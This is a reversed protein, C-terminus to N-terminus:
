ATRSGGTSRWLLISTAVVWVAFAFFGLWNIWPVLLLLALALTVWGFWRPALTGSRLFVFGSAALLVATAYFAAVIMGDGVWWFGVAVEPDIPADRDSVLIAASVQTGFGAFILVATAIGGAHATSALRGVGGEVEQLVARLTSVFWLFFALGIFILISAWWISGDEEQYYSAFQAAPADGDPVDGIVDHVLAGLLFLAVAVVGTLPALADSRAPRITPAALTTEM